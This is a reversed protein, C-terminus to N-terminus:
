FKVYLCICACCKNGKRRTMTIDTKTYPLPPLMNINCSHCHPPYIFTLLHYYEGFDGIGTMSRRRDRHKNKKHKKDKKGRAALTQTGDAGSLSAAFAALQDQQSPLIGIGTSARRNRRGKAKFPDSKKREKLKAVPSLPFKPEDNKKEKSKKKSKRPSRSEKAASGGSPISISLNNKHAVEEIGAEDDSGPTTKDTNNDVAAAASMETEAEAKSAGCGM